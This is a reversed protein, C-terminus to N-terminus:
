FALPQDQQIGGFRPMRSPYDEFAKNYNSTKQYASNLMPEVQSGYTSKVLTSAEFSKAMVFATNDARPLMFIQNLPIEVVTLVMHLVVPEPISGSETLGILQYGRARHSHKIAEGILAKAPLVGFKQNLMGSPNEPVRTVIPLNVENKNIDLIIYLPLNPDHKLPKSLSIIEAGIGSVVFDAGEPAVFNTNPRMNALPDAGCGPAVQFMTGRSPVYSKISFKTITATASHIEGPTEPTSPAGPMGPTSPASPSTPMIKLIIADSESRQKQPLQEVNTERQNAESPTEPQESPLMGLERALDMDGTMKIATLTNGKTTADNLAQQATVQRAQVFSDADTSKINNVTHQVTAVTSFASNLARDRANQAMTQPSSRPKNSSWSGKGLNRKNGRDHEITAGSWSYGANLSKSTSVSGTSVRAQAFDFLILQFSNFNGM